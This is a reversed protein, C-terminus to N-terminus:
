PTAHHAELERQQVGCRHCRHGARSQCGLIQWRKVKVQNIFGGVFGLTDENEIAFEQIPNVENPDCYFFAIDRLSEFGDATHTGDFDDDLIVSREKLFARVREDLIGRRVKELIRIFETEDT